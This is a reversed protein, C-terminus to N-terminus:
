WTATFGCLHANTSCFVPKPSGGFVISVPWNSGFVVSYPQMNSGGFLSSSVFLADQQAPTVDACYDPNPFDTILSIYGHYVRADVRMYNTDSQRVYMRLWTNAGAGYVFRPYGSCDEATRFDNSGFPLYYGVCMNESTGSECCVNSQVTSLYFTGNWDNLCPLENVSNGGNVFGVVNTTLQIQRPFKASCEDCYFECLCAGPLHRMVGNTCPPGSCDTVTIIMQSEGAGYGDDVTETVTYVGANSYTHMPNELTSSGGDGFDWSWSNVSYYDSGSGDLFSVTLPVCGTSVDVVFSSYGQGSDEVVWFLVGIFVAVVLFVWAPLKEEEKWVVKEEM